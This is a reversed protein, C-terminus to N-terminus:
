SFPTDLIWLFSVSQHLFQFSHNLVSKKKIDSKQLSVKKDGNGEWSQEQFYLVQASLFTTNSLSKYCQTGHLISENGDGDYM